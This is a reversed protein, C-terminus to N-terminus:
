TNERFIDISCPLASSKRVQSNSYIDTHIPSASCALWLQSAKEKKSIVHNFPFKGKKVFYYLRKQDIQM